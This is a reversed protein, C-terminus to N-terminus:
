EDKMFPRFSMALLTTILWCALALLPIFRWAATGIAKCERAEDAPRHPALIDIASSTHQM